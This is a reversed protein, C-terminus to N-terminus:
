LGLERATPPYHQSNVTQGNISKPHVRNVRGSHDYSEMWQRINGNKSNHETVFSAGRTPGETRASVEKTYYRMRGDPLQRTTVANQQAKELGSLKARLAAQANVSEAGSSVKNTVKAAWNGMRAADATVGAVPILGGAALGSNILDGQIAYAAASGVGALQSVVPIESTALVDATFHLTDGWSLSSAADSVTSWLGGDSSSNGGYASAQSSGVSVAAQVLGLPDTFNQPSNSVYTYPNLGGGFGIPDRQTFRGMTPDYFRARFYIFGTADPERGTFGFQPIGGGAIVNGWSDYRMSAQTVGATNTVAVASGLGDNHYYRTNAADPTSRIIAEDVGTYSYYALANGWTPGFEAWLSMGSYLYQTEATGVTKSLRRGQHDYTYRETSIDNGTVQVLRELADYTLARNASGETKGTMNGSDDYQFSAVLTGTDSGSRITNLQQAADYQYFYTSGDSPHRTRRNNFYDYAYQEVMTAGGEKQVERIRDLNDYVYKYSTTTGAINEVHTERRGSVDYTYDHQSIIGQSTSNVLKTLNDANDYSYQAKYGSPMTTERLRGGADFVFNVRDGNSALMATLRSAADYLFDTRKGDSDAVSNLQGGPSYDYTLIKGGRSDTISELRNAKDYGYTYTVEPTIVQTLQGLANYSYSTVQPNQDVVSLKATQTILLGKRTHDYTYEVIHGNPSETKTLNGHSDYYNHTIKGNADTKSILRGFDDYGYSAQVALVDASSVGASNTYGAKVETVYGLENYQTTSVQRISPLGYSDHVPGVTRTPRNLSDYETLTERGTNDLTRIVNGNNDYFYQLTRSDPTTVKKLRGNEAAGYYEYYTTNGNPDTTATPRGGIDYVTKVEHGHEDLARTPRNMNDYEFHVSYGDPNTIKSVNGIEDYETHTAFGAINKTVEPRNLADYEITDHFFLGVKGDVGPALMHQSNISGNDNYGIERWQGTADTTRAVRGNEDYEIETPYFDGGMGRTLRGLSDFSQSAEVCQNFLNGNAEHQYGCRKITIPNLNNADYIYEIYPGTQTAFDRVRKSTKLNGVSDYTNITWAQINATPPVYTCNNAQSTTLSVGKKLVITQTTNGNGDYRNLTYDGEPNKVTCYKHFATKGFYELTSGDPLISNTLDGDADYQHQTEYGLSNKVVTENLPHSGDTYEYYRKSNDRQVHEIQQGWENFLYTQRIGKEDITTTERRFKNYHFTYSQGLSDIHRFVKGNTYYEFTMGDGEPNTFSKMAHDLNAGDTAQYYSYTTPSEKGAVALPTEYSVLNNNADYDYRYTRGSWDLIRTIHANGDDYYFNISRNLEDTVAQLHNGSNNGSYTVSLTNGNRDVLRKLKASSDPAGGANEFYFTLGNKEKISYEGNTERKATVYLGKQNILSQGASVGLATGSVDFSNSAGNGNIWIVQDTTGNEDSDFFKLQHNFSHTWGYGLPGDKRVHSNYSREFAISLGGRGKLQFDQEPHYMNGSVLNVPDGALTTHGSVNGANSGAGLDVYSINTTTSTTSDVMLNSVTSTSYTNTFGTNLTPNYTSSIPTGTTYGGGASYDGSIAFLASSSGDTNEIAAIYVSGVWNDYVIKKQPIIVDGGALVHDGLSTLTVQHYGLQADPDTAANRPRQSAPTSLPCIHDHGDTYSVVFEENYSYGSGRILGNVSTTSTDSSSLQKLGMANFNMSCSINDGSYSCGSGSLSPKQYVGWPPCSYLLSNSLTISAWPKALVEGPLLTEVPLGTENAFQIGRVSSVADLHGMEQWIYSEYASSAYGSLLFADYVTSGATLDLVGGVGGAVDILFGNGSVGFPLDFLYDVRKRTSTLGLHRGLVGYGDYLAGIRVNAQTIYDMYKLGTVHLYEGLTEDQYSNPDAISGVTTLIQNSRQEVLRESAQLAYAQLSHYNHAGINTYTVKNVKKSSITSDTGYHIVMELKNDSSCLGVSAKGTVVQDVGEVAIVPTVNPNSACATDDVEAQSAGDFRLTIRKLAIEPMDFRIKPHLVSSGANKITISLSHRHGSPITVTESATIGDGWQQFTRVRYPLTSPLIDHKVKRKTGAYGAERIPKGLYTSLEEEFAEHPLKHSRHLMYGNSGYLFNNLTFSSPVVAGQVYDYQEFSPDLPMWHYGSRDTTSGRYNDYPVCAQVWVHNSMGYRAGSDYIGGQPAVAKFADNAKVGMWNRGRDDSTEFDITGTVYRTPIKSVRLLASLLSAQDTANGAGSILTGTAGKLSGWYAEYSIENAVFEYIKLPNYELKEALETIHSDFVIEPTAENLDEPLYNCGDAETDPATPAAYATGIGLLRGISEIIMDAKSYRSQMYAPPPAEPTAHDLKPPTQITPQPFSPIIEPKRLTDIYEEAQRLAQETKEKTSAISVALILTNLKEFRQDINNQFKDLNAHDKGSLSDQVGELRQRIAEQVIQLEHTKSELLVKLLSQDGGISGRVDAMLRKVESMHLNLTASLESERSPRNGEIVKLLAEDFTLKAQSVPKAADTLKALSYALDANNPSGSKAATETGEHIPQNFAAFYGAATVGLVGVIALIFFRSSFQM